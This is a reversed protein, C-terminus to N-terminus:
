IGSRGNAGRLVLFLETQINVTGKGSYTIFPNIRSNDSYNIKSSVGLLFDLISSEMSM